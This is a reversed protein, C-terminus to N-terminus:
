RDAALVSSIQSEIFSTIATEAEAAKTQAQTTFTTVASVASGKAAGEWDTAKLSTLHDTLAQRVAGIHRTVVPKLAELASVDVDFTGDAAPVPPAGVPSGDVSLVLPVGGLSSAIASTSGRVADAIQTLDALLKTSYEAAMQGCRSKFEVANPGFYRVEVAERVLAELETRSYGFRETAAAAYQRVSDPNVRIVSSM